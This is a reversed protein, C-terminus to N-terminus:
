SVVETDPNTFNYGARSRWVYVTGADLYFTVQGSDDTVGSAIVNAGASDTTVWVSAGDILAGTDADTLTYTWTIAGAGGLTDTKLKIADVVTDVIALNTATAMDPIATFGSGDAAINQVSAPTAANLSTKQLAGFDINAQEVVAVDLKDAGFMSDWVNAPVVMFDQWVPLYTAAETHIVRLRGLTNTDTTDLTVLFCGHADYTSPTVAQHRITLAGGNKSLKIGTTAHDISTIIGAGTELTVGDDKDLFPGFTIVAATSQKLWQAM